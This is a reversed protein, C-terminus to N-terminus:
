ELSTAGASSCKWTLSLMLGYREFVGDLLSNAPSRRSADLASQAQLTM